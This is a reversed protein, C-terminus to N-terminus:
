TKPTAIMTGIFWTVGSAIALTYGQSTTTMVTLLGACIPSATSIMSTFFGQVTLPVCVYSYVHTAAYHTTFLATFPLVTLLLPHM